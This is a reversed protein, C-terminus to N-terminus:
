CIELKQPLELERPQQFQFPPLAPRVFASVVMDELDFVEEINEKIEEMMAGIVARNEDVAVRVMEERAYQPLAEWVKKTYPCTEPHANPM